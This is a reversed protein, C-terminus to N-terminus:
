GYCDPSRINDYFISDTVTLHGSNAIGGGFYTDNNHFTGSIVSLTGHNDVAGGQPSDGGTFTVNQVTVFTGASVRLLQIHLLSQGDIVLDNGEILLKIGSGSNNAVTDVWQTLSINQTVSITYIGPETRSNFCDLAAGYEVADSALWPSDECALLSANASSYFLTAAITGVSFALIWVLILSRDVIHHLASIHSKM